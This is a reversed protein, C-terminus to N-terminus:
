DFGEHSIRLFLLYFLIMLRIPQNEVHAHNQPKVTKTQGAWPMVGVRGARCLNITQSAAAIRIRGIIIHPWFVKTAGM